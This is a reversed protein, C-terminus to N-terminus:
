TLTAGQAGAALVFRQAAPLATQLREDHTAILVARANQACEELLAVFRESHAVDLHATPEDCLLLPPDFFLARCLAVRQREGGSLRAARIGALEAIGFRALLSRARERDAGRIGLPAVPLLVNDEATRDDLLEAHQFVFGVQRRRAEARFRERLRSTPEGRVLVEGSTPAALLGALALLTTKGSGSPGLVLAVKGPALTLSVHALITRGERGDRVRKSVDRLELVPTTEM